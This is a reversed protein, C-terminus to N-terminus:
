TVLFFFFVVLFKSHGSHLSYLMPLPFVALLPFACFTCSAVDPTRMDSAKTPVAVGDRGEWFTITKMGEKRQHSEAKKLGELVSLSSRSVCLLRRSDWACM